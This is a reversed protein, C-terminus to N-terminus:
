LRDFLRGHEDFIVCLENNFKYGIGHNREAKEMEAEKGSLKHM